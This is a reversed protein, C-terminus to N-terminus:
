VKSVKMIAKVANGYADKLAKAKELKEEPSGNKECSTILEGLKESALKLKDIAVNKDSLNDQTNNLYDLASKVKEQIGKLKDISTDISPDLTKGDASILKAIINNQGMITVQTVRLPEDKGAEMTEATEKNAEDMVEEETKTADSDKTETTDTSEVSQTTEVSKDTTDKKLDNEGCGSLLFALVLLASVRKRM